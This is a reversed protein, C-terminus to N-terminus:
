LSQGMAAIEATIAAGIAEISSEVKKGNVFFTPTGSVGLTRGTDYEAQIMERKIHSDRCRAYLDTDLGLEKGWTDLASPSLQEQKEFAVDVFEWFKGQDAACESAEAADMAYRHLSALPFQHFDYRIQSGYQALMPQVVVSHAAKCSPCQLDGYEEVVVAANLNSKPHSVRSSEASLGTTDVCAALLLSLTLLPLFRKM